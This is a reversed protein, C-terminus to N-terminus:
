TLLREVEPYPIRKTGIGPVTRIEGAKIRTYVTSVDVGLEDALQKATWPRRIQPLESKLQAIIAGRDEPSLTITSM